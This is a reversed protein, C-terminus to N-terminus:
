AIRTAVLNSKFRPTAASYGDCYVKHYLTTGTAFATADDIRTITTGDCRVLFSVNPITQTNATLSVYIAQTINTPNSLGTGSNGSTTSVGHLIAGGSALTAGNRDVYYQADIRWTGATLVISGADGYQGSTPVSTLSTISSRLVQGIYGTGILAGSTDGPAQGAKYLGASGDTGANAFPLAAKKTKRVRWRYNLGSFVSWAQGDAAYTAAGVPRAGKNGFAVTVDTSNTITVQLGYISTNLYTFPLINQVPFWGNGGNVELAIEDDAQIPYQFRCVFDTTSSVTTSAISLFASGSRGYVTNGVANSAGATATSGSNSVFEEAPVPATNVSGAWEAIPLTFRMSLIGNALFAAGTANNATGTRSISVTTTTQYTVNATDEFNAAFAGFLSAVGLSQVNGQSTIKTTDATLGSPLSVTVVAGGSGASGNKVWAVLCEVSDGVQRWYGYPSTAFGSLNTVTPTYTQWPGVPATQSVQPYGLFVNCVNLTASGSGSVRAFRLTYSTSAVADFTTTFRGTTNPIYTVGGSDTSLTQRTSGQYVSVTWENSAFGTGPRFFFDVQLKGNMAASTTVSYSNYTGSEAASGTAVFQIASSTAGSLPLDGSTTTTVPTAFVTGTESWNGADSPNAILTVGGAGSGSGVQDLSSGNDVFLKNLSTDYVLTGQKRTLGSLNSTTNKPVTIRSTNSATGGDIDKNTLTQTGTLTAVTSDIAVTPNGSVGDGNTVSIGTGAAVSRQAWTDAATRVAIGTGSLGELAALDNALTLTPNGSVGDGNSVTIGAAPGTITRTAASGSGTRAILGTTSLAALADLDVDAAQKGALDTVLNTVQSEAIQISQNGAATLRGQQDVTFTAVQTASGYSGITVATDALAITRNASLDGGGTLGTGAGITTTKDAKTALGSSAANDAYTKAALASPVQSDTAGSLSTSTNLVGSALMALTLNSISNNTANITKNTLAQSAAAGVLTDATTPLALVINSAPSGAQLTTQQSTGQNFTVSLGDLEITGSIRM